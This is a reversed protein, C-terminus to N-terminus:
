RVNRLSLTCYLTLKIAAVVNSRSNSDVKGTGQVNLANDITTQGAIAVTDSATLPANIIVGGTGVAASM